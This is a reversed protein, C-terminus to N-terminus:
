SHNVIQKKDHMDHMKKLNRTRMSQKLAYNKMASYTPAVNERLARYM